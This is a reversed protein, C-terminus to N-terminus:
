SSRTISGKQVEPYKLNKIVFQLLNIYLENSTKLIEDFQHILRVSHRVLTLIPIKCGMCCVSPKTLAKGCNVTSCLHLDDCWFILFHM